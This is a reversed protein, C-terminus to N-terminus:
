YINLVKKLINENEFEQDKKIYMVKEQIFAKLNGIPYIQLSMNDSQKYGFAFVLRSKDRLFKIELTFLHMNTTLNVKAVLKNNIIISSISKHKSIEKSIKPKDWNINNGNKNLLTIISDIEFVLNQVHKRLIISKDKEKIEYQLIKKEVKNEIAGLDKLKLVWQEISKSLKNVKTQKEASSELNKLSKVEQNLKKFEDQIIELQLESAKESKLYFYYSIGWGIIGGFILSILIEKYKNM